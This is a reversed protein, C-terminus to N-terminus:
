PAAGIKQPAFRFTAMLSTGLLKQPLPECRALLGLAQNIVSNRTDFGESIIQSQGTKGLLWLKRVALTPVL